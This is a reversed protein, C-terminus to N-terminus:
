ILNTKYMEMTELEGEPDCIASLKNELRAFQYDRQQDPTINAGVWLAGNPYIIQYLTKVKGADGKIAGLKIVLAQKKKSFEETVDCVQFLAHMTEESEAVYAAAQGSVFINNIVTENTFQMLMDSKSLLSAAKGGKQNIKPAMAFMGRDYGLNVNLPRTDTTSVSVDLGVQVEEVYIAGPYQCASLSVISSLVFLLKLNKM